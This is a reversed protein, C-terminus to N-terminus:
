PQHWWHHAHLETEGPPKPGLTFSPWTKALSMSAATSIYGPVCQAANAWTPNSDQHLSTLTKCPEGCAPLSFQSKQNLASIDDQKRNELYERHLFLTLFLHGHWWGTCLGSLRKIPKPLGHQSSQKHAEEKMEARLHLLIQAVCNCPLKSPTKPTGCSIDLPNGNRLKSPNISDVLPSCQNQVKDLPLLVSLRHNKQVAPLLLSFQHAASVRM